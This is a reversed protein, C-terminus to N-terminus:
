FGIKKGLENLAAQRGDCDCEGVVVRVVDKTIGVATLGYAVLDGLGAAPAPSPGDQRDCMRSPIRAFDARLTYDCRPCQTGKAADPFECYNM